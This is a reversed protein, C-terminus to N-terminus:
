VLPELNFNVSSTVNVTYGTASLTTYATEPRTDSLFFPGSGPFGSDQLFRPAPYQVIILSTEQGQWEMVASSSAYGSRGPNGVRGILRLGFLDAPPMETAINTQCEVTNWVVSDLDQSRLGSTGQVYAQLAAASAISTNNVSIPYSFSSNFLDYLFSKNGVFFLIPDLMKIGAAQTASIAYVSQDSVAYIDVNKVRYGLAPPLDVLAFSITGPAAYGGAFSIGYSTQLLKSCYRM